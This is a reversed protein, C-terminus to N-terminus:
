IRTYVTIIVFIVTIVFISGIVGVGLGTFVDGAFDDGSPKRFDRWLDKLDGFIIILFSAVCFIATIALLIFEGFSM